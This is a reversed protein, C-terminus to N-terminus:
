TLEVGQPPTTMCVEYEKVSLPRVSEVKVGNIVKKETITYIYSGPPLSPPLSPPLVCQSLPPFPFFRGDM